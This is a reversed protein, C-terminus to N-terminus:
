AAVDSRISTSGNMSAQGMDLEHMYSLQRLDHRSEIREVLDRNKDAGLASVFDVCTQDIAPLGTSALMGIDPVTPEAASRGACNCDVSMRCM